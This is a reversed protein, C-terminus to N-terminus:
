HGRSQLAVSDEGPVRVQTEVQAEGTAGAWKVRDGGPAGPCTSLRPCELRMGLGPSCRGARRKGTVGCGSLLGAMRGQMMLCRLTVRESGTLLHDYCLCLWPLSQARLSWTKSRVRLWVRGKGCIESGQSFIAGWAQPSLNAQPLLLSVPRRQLGAPLPLSPTQGPHPETGPGRLPQSTTLLPSFAPSRSKPCPLDKQPGPQQVPNRGPEPKFVM